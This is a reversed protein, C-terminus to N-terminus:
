WKWKDHTVIFNQVDQELFPIDDHGRVKTVNGSDIIVQHFVRGDKLHADAIWYGMGTEPQTRFYDAFRKEILKFM